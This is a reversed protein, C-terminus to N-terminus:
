RVAPLRRASLTLSLSAPAEGLNLRNVFSLGAGQTVREYGAESNNVTEIPLYWAEAATGVAADVVVGLAPQEAHVRRVALATLPRSLPRAQAGDVAITGAGAGATIALNTEVILAVELPAGSLLEVTLKFDLRAGDRRVLLVKTMRVRRAQRGSGLTETRLMTLRHGSKLERVEVEFAGDGYRGLEEIRGKAAADATSGLAALYAQLGLRRRRDYHLLRGLGPEKARIPDHISETDPIVDRAGERLRRHYPEERRAICDILNLCAERVDWETVAGGCAPAVYVNQASGEVLIEDAGDADIDVKECRQWVGEGQVALDSEREAELLSSWAARRLHPLYTGGFVGHWYADNAQGRMLPVLASDPPQGHFALDVRQSTRLMKKHLANVEPYRVLFNRWFGGSWQLMEPYSGAPLYIPGDAGHTAIHDRPLVTQLWGSAAEIASFFRDVWGEKWCLRYTTPWAGFKEGDDGMIAIRPEESAYERLEDIVVEVSHWPISYRMQRPTALLVLRHGQEETLHPRFVDDGSVGVMEFHSDDLIAYQYGAEALPKALAPEWVREALWFGAPATGFAREVADRLRIAQSHKDRDPISPLIPEFYGGGMVEVQRRVALARVREIFDPHHVALHDLLYGTYHLAVRIKPHRELCEVLPLYSREYTEELVWAFNGAPQHNHLALALNLRKIFGSYRYGKPNWPLTSM